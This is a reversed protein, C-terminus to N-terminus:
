TSICKCNTYPFEVASVTRFNENRGNEPRFLRDEFHPRVHFHPEFPMVKGCSHHSVTVGLSLMKEGWFAAATVCKLNPAGFSHPTSYVRTTLSSVVPPTDAPPFIGARTRQTRARRNGVSSLNVDHQSYTGSIGHARPCTAAESDGGFVTFTGVSTM